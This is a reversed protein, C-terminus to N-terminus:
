REDGIAAGVADPRGWSGSHATRRPMYRMAQENWISTPYDHALRAFVAESRGPQDSVKLAAGLRFLAEPVQDRNPFRELCRELREIKVPVSESSKAIELEINDEIQCNVYRAELRRLNDVYSEHHPDLDMLGFPFPDSSRRPGSIPDYGYLPDRNASLLDYHRHAELLVREMPIGLSSEATGRALVDKLSGSRLEATDGDQSGSGLRMCLIELKAIAREVDGDRAELQALRLLAVAGVVSDAHNEVLMRWAERSAPSPFCDYYRIWKTRRFEGPDVRMDLTRAKIFLANPAYRSQPFHRLFRDCEDVLEAQHRALASRTPSIDPALEFLWRTEMQERIAAKSPRPSPHREWAERVMQELPASTYEDAFQSDNLAELLRYYLEDRGVHFEFLAVPLGFMIALLPTIAGPRYDVLKAIALVVAFVVAAAVIALVWPAIFKMRDVPDIRGALLDTTGHWALVLYLVAPLLGLLASVFRFRTQLRRGSVIICSVLLAVALWPMVALFGVVAIFPVSSWFRYLLSALIPISILAAMLLGVIPIQMPVDQVSIPTLLLAGLSGGPDRQGFMPVSLFTQWLGDWYGDLAPAFWVGSRLWHAFGGVGAFLFVNVALLVIARVRYRSGSRSWVDKVKPSVDAGAVASATGAQTVPSRSGVRNITRAGAM